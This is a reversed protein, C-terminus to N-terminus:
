GLLHLRLMRKLQRLSNAQLIEPPLNNFLEPVYFERTYRGYRTRAFPIEFTEQFRLSRLAVNKRKFQDTWFYRLVVTQIFLTRLCPFQLHQFLDTGDPLQM